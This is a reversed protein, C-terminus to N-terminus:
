GARPGARPEGTVVAVVSVGALFVLIDWAVGSRIVEAATGARHRVCLWVAACAAPTAVLWLPRGTAAVV